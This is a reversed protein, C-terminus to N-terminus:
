AANEVLARANSAPVLSAEAEADVRLVEAVRAWARSFLGFGEGREEEGGDIKCGPSSLSNILSADNPSRM